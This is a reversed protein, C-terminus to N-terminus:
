EAYVVTVQPLQLLHHRFSDFPRVAQRGAFRGELRRRSDCGAGIAASATGVFAPGCVSTWRDVSGNSKTATGGDRAKLPILTTGMDPMYDPGPEFLPNTVRPRVPAAM